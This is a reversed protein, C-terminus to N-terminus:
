VCASSPLERSALVVNALKREGSTRGSLSILQCLRPLLLGFNTSGSALLFLHAIKPMANCLLRNFVYEGTCVDRTSVLPFCRSSSSSSRPSCFSCLDQTLHKALSGRKFGRLKRISAPGDIRRGIFHPSLNITAYGAAHGSAYGLRHRRQVLLLRSLPPCCPSHPQSCGCCGLLGQHISPVAGALEALQLAHGRVM